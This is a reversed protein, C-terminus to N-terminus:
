DFEYPHIAIVDQSIHMYYGSNDLVFRHLQRISPYGFIGCFTRADDILIVHNKVEHAFIMALERAIPTDKTGRATHSGSDHADLWFVAPQHIQALISPLHLASDGLFSTINDVGAFRENAQAYLKPDLEITFCKCFVKAMQLATRGQYTGTEIFVEFGTTRQWYRLYERKEDASRLTLSYAQLYHIMALYSKAADAFLSFLPFSKRLRQVSRYKM